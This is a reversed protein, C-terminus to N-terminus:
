SPTLSKQPEPVRPLETMKPAVKRVLALFVDPNSYIKVMGGGVLMAVVSMAMEIIKSRVLVHSANIRAQHRRMWKAALERSAAAMRSTDRLDAFVSLTGARELERDLEAMMAAEALADEETVAGGHCTLLVFGPKLTEVRFRVCTGFFLSAGGAEVCRMAAQSQQLSTGTMTM